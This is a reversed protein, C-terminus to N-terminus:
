RDLGLKKLRDEWEDAGSTECAGNAPEFMQVTIKGSRDGELTKVPLGAIAARVARAMDATKFPRPAM